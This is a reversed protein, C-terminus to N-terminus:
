QSDCFMTVSTYITMRAFRPIQQKSHSARKQMHLLLESQQMQMANGLPPFDVAAEHQQFRFDFYVGGIPSTTANATQEDEPEERGDAGPGTEISNHM